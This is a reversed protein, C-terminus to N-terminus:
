SDYIWEGTKRYFEYAGKEIVVAHYGCKICQKVPNTLTKKYPGTKKQNGKVCNCVFLYERKTISMINSRFLIYEQMWILEGRKNVQVTSQVGAQGLCLTDLKTVIKLTDLSVM